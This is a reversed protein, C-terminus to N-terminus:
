DPQPFRIAPSTRPPAHPRPSGTPRASGTASPSPSASPASTPQPEASAPPPSASAPQSSAPSSSEPTRPASSVASVRSAPPSGSRLIAIAVAAAALLAGTGMGGALKRRRSAAVPKAAEVTLSSPQTAVTPVEGAIAIPPRHGEPATMSEHGAFSAAAGDAGQISSSSEIEALQESRQALTEQAVEQVWAGVETAFAPPVIKVLAEAMARASDFRASPDAALGKMVLADLAQPLEPAYRSPPEGAGALVQGYVAADSDGQFLRRGALMEWLVVATAYVDTRYTVERAGIQEPAMYAMKGKVVGERTTQLRGAAKAIGFDIVRAVGDIGVLVNQPSVDRHVIALPLGRDSTAQHAAHLGHLVGAIIASAIPLPVRRGRATEARVLRSLSEGRVYEMVVLLEGEAAIVDLTPVVNPHNIRSALRAEDIMTSLFEQEEALHPHLRKIAVTRAFGVAGTLRGFHVSAMGGSAIRSYIAYRGVVKPSALVGM